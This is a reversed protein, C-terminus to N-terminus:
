NTIKPLKSNPALLENPAAIGGGLGRPLPNIIKGGQPLYQSIQREFYALEAKPKYFTITTGNKNYVGFKKSHPDYIGIEGKPYEIAPLKELRFRKFFDNAMKAYEKPTQVGLRGSHKKFHKLLTEPKGWSKPATVRSPKSAPATGVRTWQGGGRQGAPIRAQGPNFNAKAYLEVAKGFQKLEQQFLYFAIDELIEWSKLRLSHETEMAGAKGRSGPVPLTSRLQLLTDKRM